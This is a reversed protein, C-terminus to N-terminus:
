ILYLINNYNINIGCYSYMELYALVKIIKYVNYLWNIEIKKYRRPAETQIPLMDVYYGTHSYYNRLSRIEEEIEEINQNNFFHKCLGNNKELKKRLFLRDKGKGEEKQELFSLYELVKYYELFSIEASSNKRDFEIFPFLANKNDKEFNYLNKFLKIFVEFSEERKCISFNRERKANQMIYTNKDRYLFKNKCYDFINIRRHRKKTLVLLHITSDLLQILKYVESINISKRFKLIISSRDIISIKEVDIYSHNYKFNSKLYINITNDNIDIKGIKQEEVKKGHINVAELVGNKKLLSCDYSENGFINKIEDHFYEIKSIKTEKTFHKIKIQNEFCNCDKYLYMSSTLNTSPIAYFESKNAFVRFVTIERYKSDIAYIEPVFNTEDLISYKEIDPIKFEIGEDTTKMIAIIQKKKNLNKFPKNDIYCFENEM